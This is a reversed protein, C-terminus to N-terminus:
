GNEEMQSFSFNKHGWSCKSVCICTQAHACNSQVCSIAHKFQSFLGSDTVALGSQSWFGSVSILFQWKLIQQPASYKRTCMRAQVWNQGNNGQATTQLLLSSPLLSISTFHQSSCTITIPMACNSQLLPHLVEAPQLFCKSKHPNYGAAWCVINWIVPIFYPDHYKKLPNIEAKAREWLSSSSYESNRDSSLWLWCSTLSSEHLM